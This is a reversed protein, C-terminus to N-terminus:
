KRLFHLAFVKFFDWLARVRIWIAKAFRGQSVAQVYELRLDAIAPLVILHMTKRSCFRHALSFFFSGLGPTPAVVPGYFIYDRV